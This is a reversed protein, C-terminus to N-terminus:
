GLHVTGKGVRSQAMASAIILVVPDPLGSNLDECRQRDGSNWVVHVVKLSLRLSQKKRQVFPLTVGSGVPPSNTPSSHFHTEASVSSYETQM